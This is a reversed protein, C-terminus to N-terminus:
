NNIFTSLNVITTGQQKTKQPLDMDKLKKLFKIPEAIEYLPIVTIAYGKKKANKLAKNINDSFSQTNPDYTEDAKCNMNLKACISAVKSGQNNTLDWFWLDNGKASNLIIEVLSKQEVAKDGYRTAMGRANPIKLKAENIIEQIEKESRYNRLPKLIRHHENLSDSEMAIWLVLEDNKLDSLNLYEKESLGFPQVLLDYAYDLDNLAVILEPSLEKIQFAITFTSSGPRFDSSSVQLELKLSDGNEDLLDVNASEIIAPDSYFLDDIKIIKGNYDETMKKLRLLYVVMNEGNAMIWLHRKKRKIFSTQLPKLSQELKNIFNISDQSTKNLTSNQLANQQLSDQEIINTNDNAKAAERMDSIKSFALFAGIAFVALIMSIAIFHKKKDM